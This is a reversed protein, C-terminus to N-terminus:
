YRVGYHEVEYLGRRYLFAFAEADGWCAQVLELLANYDSRHLWLELM